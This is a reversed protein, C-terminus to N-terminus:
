KRAPPTQNSASYLVDAVPTKGAVKVLKAPAVTRGGVLLSNGAPREAHEPGYIREAATKNDM